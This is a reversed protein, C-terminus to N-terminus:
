PTQKWVFRQTQRPEVSTFFADNYVARFASQCTACRWVEGESQPSIPPKCKFKHWERQWRNM